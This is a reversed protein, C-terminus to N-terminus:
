RNIPFMKIQVLLNDYNMGGPGKANILLIGENTVRAMSNAGCDTSLYLNPKLMSIM